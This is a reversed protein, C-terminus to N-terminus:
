DIESEKKKNFSIWGFLVVLIFFLPCMFLGLSIKMLIKLLDLTLFLIIELMNLLFMFDIILRSKKKMGYDKDHIKCPINFVFSMLKTVWKPAYYPGCYYEKEM